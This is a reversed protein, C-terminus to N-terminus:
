NGYRNIYAQWDAGHDYQVKLDENLVKDALYGKTSHVLWSDVAGVELAVYNTAGRIYGMILGGNVPDVSNFINVTNVGSGVVSGWAFKSGSGWVWALPRPADIIVANKPKVRGSLHQLYNLALNGGKSHGVLTIDQMGAMEQSLEDMAWNITANRSAAQGVGCDCESWNFIHIGTVNMIEQKDADSAKQWEKLWAEWNGDHETWGKYAMIWDKWESPDAWDNTNYGGVFMADHGSPDTYNIPNNLAYSFRNLAQPNGAGPVITDASIFRGLTAAYYRANYFMLGTADLRQGTFGIDTPLTGTTSRVQGYPLYKQRAAVNGSADTTLSTSGLHDSHLYSVTTNQRLAVPQGNALYYSTAVNTTLNKEFLAGVYVTTQGNETKKVRNGDGDYVFTTTGSTTTVTILRNEADFTQTYTTGGEIRQTMNGNCDYTYTNSGAQTVAHPKLV